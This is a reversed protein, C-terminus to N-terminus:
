QLNVSKTRLKMKKPAQFHILEDSVHEVVGSDEFPDDVTLKKRLTTIKSFDFAHIDVSKFLDVGELV